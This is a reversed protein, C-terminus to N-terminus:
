IRRAWLSKDFSHWLTALSIRRAAQIAKRKTRMRGLGAIADRKARLVTVAQGRFVGVILAAINMLVHAPLLAWFLLGPMNKVFTWVVNRQGHYVSFDGRYGSTASGVHQVIADPALRCEYGALRLRFALDVDEVYCFYDEDFGGVERVSALVYLAAGGCAGFVQAGDRPRLECMAQGHGYRWCLGSIHYADGLGDIVLPRDHWMMRSALSACTPYRSAADLLAELWGTEAFADPNLLAVHSFEQEALREFAQNNARAFGVNTQNRIIEVRGSGSDISNLSGDTSHNDVVIVLDPMRSQALLSAVCRELLDGGNYNVVIAAVRAEINEQNEKNEKNM